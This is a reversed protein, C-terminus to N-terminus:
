IMGNLKPHISLQFFNIKKKLWCITNMIKEEPHRHFSQGLKQLSIVFLGQSYKVLAAAILQKEIPKNAHLLYSSLVFPLLGINLYLFHILPLSNMHKPSNFADIIKGIWIWIPGSGLEHWAFLLSYQPGLPGVALM